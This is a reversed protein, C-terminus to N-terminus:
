DMIGDDYRWSIGQDDLYDMVVKASEYKSVNGQVPPPNIRGVSSDIHAGLVCTGQDKSGLKVWNDYWMKQAKEIYEDNSLRDDYEFGSIDFNSIKVTKGHTNDYFKGDRGCHLPVLFWYDEGDFLVDGSSTSRLGWANGDEDTELEQWLVIRSDYDKNIEGDEFTEPMSWSGELNQTLRFADSINDVNVTAVKTYGKENDSFQNAHYITIM